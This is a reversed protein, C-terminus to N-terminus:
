ISANLSAEKPEQHAITERWWAKMKELWAGMKTEFKKMIAVLHESDMM